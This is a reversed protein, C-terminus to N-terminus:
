DKATKPPKPGFYQYYDCKLGGNYIKRKKDARKGFLKEFNECSTITYLSWTPFKKFHEGIGKYIEEAQQKELLREGYPPNTIIFGYEFRSGTERFDLKQFHINRDVGALEAHKKALRLQYYDIDSCFIKLETDNDISAIAKEREELWLEAPIISWREADFEAKLGPAINMGIMAAEIGFTGSGCFPDLLARDKRWRSIMILGAALNEKIPSKGVEERYGRRNLGHGSTDITVTAFDELFSIEIMYRPGTEEMWELNYAAKLREAIAKKSISQIDRLSYIKSKVSRANVIFAGKEPIVSEWCIAKIGQFLEEFSLAKFKGLNLLVRDATRLWLNSRVITREDGKYYIRGNETAHETIGLNDLERALVAELGFATTAIIDLEKM